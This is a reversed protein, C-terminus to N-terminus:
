VYSLLTERARASNEVAETLERDLTAVAHRLVEVEVDFATRAFGVWHMVSPDRSLRRGVERVREQEARLLGCQRDLRDALAAVAAADQM